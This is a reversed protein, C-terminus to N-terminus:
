VIGANKYHRHMIDIEQAAFDISCNHSTDLSKYKTKLPDIIYKIAGKLNGHLAKRFTITM